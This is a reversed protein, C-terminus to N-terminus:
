RLENIVVRVILDVTGALFVVLQAVDHLLRRGCFFLVTDFVV